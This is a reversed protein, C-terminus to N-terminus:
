GFLVHYMAFIKGQFFSLRWIAPPSTTLGAVWNKELATGPITFTYVTEVKQQNQRKM